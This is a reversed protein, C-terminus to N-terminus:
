KVQEVGGPDLAGGSRRALGAHWLGAVDEERHADRLLLGATRQPEGEAVRGGDVVDVRHQSRQGRRHSPRSAGGAPAPSAPILTTAAILPPTSEATAAARITSAPWSTTPTCRARLWDAAVRRSLARPQQVISSAPSARRTASMSPM